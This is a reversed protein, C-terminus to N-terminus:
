DPRELRDIKRIMEMLYPPCANVGEAWNQVTRYPIGYRRACEAQSMGLDSLLQRFPSDGM